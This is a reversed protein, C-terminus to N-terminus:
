LMLGKHIRHMDPQQLHVWREPIQVKPPEKVPSWTGPSSGMIPMPGIIAGEIPKISVKPPKWIRPDIGKDGFPSRKKIDALLRTLSHKGPPM